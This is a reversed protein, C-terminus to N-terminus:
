KSVEEGNDGSTPCHKHCDECYWKDTAEDVIMRDHERGNIKYSVGCHDCGILTTVDVSDTSSERELPQPPTPTPTPTPATGSVETEVNKGDMTTNTTTSTTPHITTNTTTHPTYKEKTGTFKEETEM